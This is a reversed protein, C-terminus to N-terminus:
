IEGTTEVQEYFFKQKDGIHRFDDLTLYTGYKALTYENLAKYLEIVQECVTDASVEKDAFTQIVLRTKEKSNM